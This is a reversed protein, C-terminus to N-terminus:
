KITKLYFTLALSLKLSAYAHNIIQLTSVVFVITIYKSYLKRTEKTNELYFKYKM